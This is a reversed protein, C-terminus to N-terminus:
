FDNWPRDLLEDFRKKSCSIHAIERVTPDKLRGLVILRKRIAELRKESAESGLAKMSPHRDVLYKPLIEEIKRAVEKSRVLDFIDERIKQDAFGFDATTFKHRLSLYGTAQRTSFSGGNDIGTSKKTKPDVRINVTHRDIEDRLFDLLMLFQYTSLFQGEKTTWDENLGLKEQIERKLCPTRFVFSALSRPLWDGRQLRLYDRVPESDSMLQLSGRKMGIWGGQRPLDVVFTEPIIGELSEKLEGEASDKILSFLQYAAQEVLYEQDVPFADDDRLCRVFPKKLKFCLNQNNSGHPGQNWPKFVGLRKKGTYDVLFTVGSSGSSPVEMKVGLRLALTGERLVDKFTKSMQTGEAPLHFDPGLQIKKRLIKILREPIKSRDYERSALLVFFLQECAAEDNKLSDCFDGDKFLAEIEEKSVPLSSNLKDFLSKEGRGYFCVALSSPPLVATGRVWAPNIKMLKKQVLKAIRQHQETTTPNLGEVLERIRRNIRRNIQSSQFFYRFVYCIKQFLSTIKCLAGDKVWVWDTKKLGFLCKLEADESREPFQHTWPAVKVSM